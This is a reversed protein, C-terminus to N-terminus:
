SCGDSKNKLLVNVAEHSSTSTSLKRWDRKGSTDPRCKGVFLPGKSRDAYDRSLKHWINGSLGFTCLQAYICTAWRQCLVDIWVNFLWSTLYYLQLVVRRERWRWWGGIKGQQQLEFWRWGRVVSAVLAGTSTCTCRTTPAIHQSRLNSHAM